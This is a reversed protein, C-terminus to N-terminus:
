RRLKSSAILSDNATSASLADRTQDLTTTLAARSIKAVIPNVIWGLSAPVGRSLALTELQVYVGGDAAEYRTISQLRWVFGNGHDPAFNKQNARGYNLIEQLRESVTTVYWHTDDVHHFTSHYQGSLAADVSLVRKKVLMSFEDAADARDLLKAHLVAPDYYEPYHQYSRTTALVEAISRQPIFALGVWDHILGSPVPIAGKEQAPHVVIEGARLRARLESSDDIELFHARTSAAHLTGANRQQVYAKWAEATEPKLDAARSQVAVAAVLVLALLLRTLLTTLMGFGYATKLALHRTLVPLVPYDRSSCQSPHPPFNPM